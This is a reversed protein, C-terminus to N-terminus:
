KLIEEAKTYVARKVFNYLGLAIAGGLAGTFFSVLLMFFKDNVKSAFILMALLSGVFNALGGSLIAKLFENIKIFFILDVAIGSLPYTILVWFGWKGAFGLILVLIAQILSFLTACFKKNIFFAILVIWMMYICGVLIGAIPLPGALIKLYPKTIVSIAAILSILIMEKITFRM